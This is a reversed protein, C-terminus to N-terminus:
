CWAPRSGSAAAWARSAASASSAAWRRRWGGRSPWAWALAASAGRPRRSPGCYRSSCAPCSAAAIGIGTDRVTFRLLLREGEPALVEVQLAVSGQPTFKVANSLLNVLAQALRTPDGRLADPVDGRVDTVLGLVGVLMDGDRRVMTSGASRSPVPWGKLSAMLTAEAPSRLVAVGPVTFATAPGHV